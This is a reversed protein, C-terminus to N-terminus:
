MLSVRYKFQLTYLMRQREYGDGVTVVSKIGLDAHREGVGAPLSASPLQFFFSCVMYFTVYLYGATVQSQSGRSSQRREPASGELFIYHCFFRMFKSLVVAM